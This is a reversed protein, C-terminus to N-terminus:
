KKPDQSQIESIFKQIEAKSIGLRAELRGLMEESKGEVLLMDNDTLLAFKQKLRGKVENWNGSLETLNKM